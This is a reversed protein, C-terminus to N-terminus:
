LLRLPGSSLRVSGSLTALNSEFNDAGERLACEVRNHFVMVPSRQSFTSTLLKATNDTQVHCSEPCWERNILVCRLMLPKTTFNM